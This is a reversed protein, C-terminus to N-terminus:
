VTEINPLIFKTNIPETPPTKGKFNGEFGFYFYERKKLNLGDNEKVIDFDVERANLVGNLGLVASYDTGVGARETILSSSKSETVRMFLKTNTNGAIKDAREQGVEAVIDAFNQTFGHLFINAGGAKNFLDEIGMYVVNSFEDMYVSLPKSLKKNAVYLRGALSQIMSVIVRALTYSVQKTLLSGTQVYLIVSKDNELRDIFTNQVESGIIRGTNGQTLQMLTTQLTKTVLSGEFAQSLNKV